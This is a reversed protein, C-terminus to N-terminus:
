SHCVITKFSDCKKHCIKKSVINRTPKIGKEVEWYIAKDFRKSLCFRMAAPEDCGDGHTLCRDLRYGDISPYNYEKVKAEVSSFPLLM